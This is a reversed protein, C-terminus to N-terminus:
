SSQVTLQRQARACAIDLLNPMLIGARWTRLIYSTRILLLTLHTSTHNSHIPLIPYKAAPVFYFERCLDPCASVINPVIRRIGM